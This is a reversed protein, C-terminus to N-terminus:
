TKLVRYHSRKESLEQMIESPTPEHGERLANLVDEWRTLHIEPSGILYRLGHKGLPYVLWTVESNEISPVTGSIPLSEFFMEDVAVFFKKGWRRFVPVKLSLQPMLRKQASSRYDLRRETGPPVSGTRLFEHFAAKISRGSFYVAQVELAAFDSGFHKTFMEKQRESGLAGERPELPELTAVDRLYAHFKEKKRSALYHTLAWASAYGASTLRSATVTEEVMEGTADGPQKLFKELEHMRLDNPTGM